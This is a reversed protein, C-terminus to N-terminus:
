PSDLITMFVLFRHYWLWVLAFRWLNSTWAVINQHLPSQVTIVGDGKKYYKSAWAVILIGCWSIKTTHVELYGTQSGIGRCLNNKVDVGSDRKYQNRRQYIM